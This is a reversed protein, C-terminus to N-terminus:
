LYVVEFDILLGDNIGKQKAFAKLLKLASEADASTLKKTPNKMLVNTYPNDEGSGMKSVEDEIQEILPLNKTM